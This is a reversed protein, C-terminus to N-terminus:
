PMRPYRLTPSSTWLTAPIMKSGTNAGFWADPGLPGFTPEVAMTSYSVLVPVAFHTNTPLTFVGTVEVDFSTDWRLTQGLPDDDGFYYRATEVSLVATYPREIAGGRVFPIDLMGLLAPDAMAAQQVALTEARRILPRWAGTLRATSEVEAFTEAISAALPAPLVLDGQRVVRFVRERLENFAEYSLEHRVYLSILLACALGVALGAINIAAYLRRRLLGRVATKLYSILMAAM